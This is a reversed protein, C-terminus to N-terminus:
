IGEEQRQRAPVYLTPVYLAEFLGIAYTDTMGSIYDCVAREKGEEDAVMRYEEPSQAPNKEYYRYWGELIYMVKQEEDKAKSRYVAAFMFDRLENYAKLVPESMSIEVKEQSQEVLDSVLVTFRSSSNEGLVERVSLPIAQENPLLGARM